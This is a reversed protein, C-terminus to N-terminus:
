QLGNKAKWEAATSLPVIMTYSNSQGNEQVGTTLYLPTMLGDDSFFLQPRERRYFNIQSGDNFNVTTNYALTNNNFTWPVTMFDRSFAHRGVKPGGGFGGGAELSHMLLHWNGRKDQYVHPDENGNPFLPQGTIRTYPGKFNSAMSLSILEDGGCNYPCGRYALLIASSNFIPFASPNTTDTDWYNDTSNGHASLVVGFESWNILDPSTRMTISSEGNINNGQNNDCTFSPQVCSSPQAVPCGIHYM